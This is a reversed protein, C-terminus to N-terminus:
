NKSNPFQMKINRVTDVCVQFLPTVTLDMLSLVCVSWNSFAAHVAVQQTVDQM